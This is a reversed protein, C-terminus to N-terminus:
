PAVRGGLERGAQELWALVAGSDALRHHALTSGAGVRVGFGGLSQAAAIGDEDTVDDGVYVPLRGSFIPRRALTRLASGKSVDRRKLEVVMHGDILQWSAGAPGVGELAAHLWRRCQAGLEPRARYHLALGAAKEELLLGPHAAVLAEAAHAVAPLPAVHNWELWGADDRVEAGHLGATAGAYPALLRDLDAIARGSVVALAGGLLHRLGALLAPVRPPVRVDQPRPALPVLTGDFDLFLAARSPLAPPTDTPLFLM